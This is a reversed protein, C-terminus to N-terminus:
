VPDETVCLAALDHSSDYSKAWFQTPAQAAGHLYGPGQDPSPLLIHDEIVQWSWSKKLRLTSPKTNHQDMCPAKMSFLSDYMGDTVAGGNGEEGIM